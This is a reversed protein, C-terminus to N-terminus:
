RSYFEVILTPDFNQKLDADSPLNLVKGSMEAAELHLWSPVKVQELRAAENKMAGTKTAEKFSVVDGPKLQYSPITVRKGNVTVHGHGIMQRSLARSRGLGLRFVVNDLRTELMQVLLDTTNGEKAKAKDFYRRFQKEMLGYTNRAKQKERLQTGYPTPRSRSTPGHQGPKYSRRSVPCKPTFCKEGKLYLKEGERRCQKCKPELRRGM